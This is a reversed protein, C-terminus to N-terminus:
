RFFLRYILKKIRFLLSEKIKVMEIRATTTDQAPYTQSFYGEASITVPENEEVFPVEFEGSKNTTITKGNSLITANKIKRGSEDIVYGKFTKPLFYKTIVTVAPKPKLSETWIATSGGVSTWYNIGYLEDIKVLKSLAEQIWRAQREEDMPGHIDPIPAGFEGLVVKGGSTKAISKIDDSLQNPDSVYHDIVVVGGLARTTEPNMILRAVDGNMPFYNTIVQKGNLRFIEKAIKYEEILFDRFEDPDADIRPDGPGGNECEPCSTFIDGDEFLDQNTQIFEKLLKKHDEPTIKKYGFWGEWGAFNGRFWVKLNHKRASIVWRKSFPVFEKDYPTGIAIHTAGADAILKTQKEIVSDFNPDNNMQLALDRSYKVTDISQVNWWHKPSSNNDAALVPAQIFPLIATTLLFFLLRTLM